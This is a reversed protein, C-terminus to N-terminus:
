HRIILPMCHNIENHLAFIEQFFRVMRITVVDPEVYASSGTLRYHVTMAM